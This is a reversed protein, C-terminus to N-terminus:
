PDLHEKLIDRLEDTLWDEDPLIFIFGKQNDILVTGIFHNNEYTVGEWIHELDMLTWDQWIETIVGMDKPEVLNIWGDAEPDYKFNEKPLDVCLRQVLDEIIPYAPNQPDLQTLHSPSKFALM